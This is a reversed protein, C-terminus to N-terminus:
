KAGAVADTGGLSAALFKTVREILRTDSIDASGDPAEMLLLSRAAVQKRAAATAIEEADVGYSIEFTWKCLPSLWRLLASQPMLRNQVLEFSDRVPRDVVIASIQPDSCAALLAANGGTGCGVVAVRNPDVFQRRRLLEVAARVDGAEALGFTEGRTARLGGGRLNLALVVYGADHLPRILPLMQERRQGFDHVLVIAPHKKRLIKDQEQLVLRADLVPVLWAELRTKDHGVFNVTDYYIGLTAPDVEATVARPHTAVWVIACASLAVLIPVFALRYMLARFFRSTPTGEEVRFGRISHLPDYMLLRTALKLIRWLTTGLLRIFRRRRAPADSSTTEEFFNPNMVPRQM